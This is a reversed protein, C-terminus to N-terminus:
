NFVPIYCRSPLVVIRRLVGFPTNPRIPMPQVPRILGQRELNVRGDLPNCQRPIHGLGAYSREGGYRRVRVGYSAIRYRVQLIQRANQKEGRSNRFL